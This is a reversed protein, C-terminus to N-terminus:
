PRIGKAIIRYVINPFNQLKCSSLSSSGFVNSQHKKFLRAATKFYGPSNFSKSETFCYNGLLSLLFSCCIPPSSPFGVFWVGFFLCFIWTFEHFILTFLDTACFFSLSYARSISELPWTCLVRLDQFSLFKWSIVKLGLFLFNHLMQVHLEQWKVGEGLFFRHSLM